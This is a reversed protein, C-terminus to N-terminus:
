LTELVQSLHRSKKCYTSWFYDKSDGKPIDIGGVENGSLTISGQGIEEGQKICPQVKPQHPLMVGRRAEEAWFVNM